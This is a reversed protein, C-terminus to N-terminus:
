NQLLYFLINFADAFNILLMEQMKFTRESFDVIDWSAAPQGGNIYIYSVSFLSLIYLLIYSFFSSSHFSTWRRLAILATWCLLNVAMAMHALPENRELNIKVVIDFNVYEHALWTLGVIVVNIALALIIRWKISSKLYIRRDFAIMPIAEKKMPTFGGIGSSM